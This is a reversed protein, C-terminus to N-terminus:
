KRIVLHEADQRTRTKNSPAVNARKSLPWRVVSDAAILVLKRCGRSSVGLYEFIVLSPLKLDGQKFIDGTWM